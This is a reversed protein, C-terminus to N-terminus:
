AVTIDWKTGLYREVRQREATTLVRQYVLIEAIWGRWNFTDGADSGVRTGQSDTDSTNGATQFSSNTAISSGNQHLTAAANAYDLTGSLVNANTNSFSATVSQSSDADLRRNGVFFNNPSAFAVGFTARTATGTGTSAHWIPRFTNNLNSRAVAIMTLGSVNRTVSLTASNGVLRSANGIVHEVSLVRRGNQTDTTASPQNVATPQSYTRGNGSLDRWESVTAGNFTLSSTNDADLWLALGSIRRPDFGSARPRLLRPSMAM